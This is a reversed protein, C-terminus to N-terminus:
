GLLNFGLSTTKLWLGISALYFRCLLPWDFGLAGKENSSFYQRSLQSRLLGLDWIMGLRAVFNVNKPNQSIRHKWGNETLIEGFQSTPWKWLDFDLWRVFLIFLPSLQESSPPLGCIHYYAFRATGMFDVEETFFGWNRGLPVTVWRLGERAVPVCVEGGLLNLVKRMSFTFLNGTLRFNRCCASTQFNVLTQMLLWWKNWYITRRITVKTQLWWKPM